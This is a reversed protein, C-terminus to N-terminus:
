RPKGLEVTFKQRKKERMAEIVVKDGAKYKRLASDIDELGGIKSDGFKVIVDGSKLGGKAAPGGPSVGMLAYGEVEQSFDPISGLYPRSGSRAALVPRKVEAYTPRKEEADIAAVIDGVFKVVRTMGELNLKDFDDSPRHYDKHTGTFIHFVPIKKAYFSSQDSPGFGTPKKTIKFKHDENLDDILADFEEASGTGYAILKNDDLRGVMDMNVMAITNELAFLPERVYKASGLLGREEATFAIFVLRRRPKGEQKAFRRAVELLAAAGSANDDAGNHIAKTWPALSGQGGWGIHDYHAGIVITENALPGEGPLVGVVNKVRATKRIVETQGKSKWATLEVSAPKLDLDIQKEIDVLKKGLQEELLRNVAKRTAFVVPFTKRPASSGAETFKLLRDPDGTMQEYADALSKALKSIEEQSKSEQEATPEKVEATENLKKQLAESLNAWEKTAIEIDNKLQVRDNVLIVGAAGHEFANAVKRTFTAHQTTKTGDFLSHPNNQQPEKRLLIVLKGKVDIDAYDDYKHEKSSIGYGAFVIPADINATGGIALPTYDAGLKWVIDKSKEDGKLAIFKLQNKKAAGLVSETTIEFEQYPGGNYLDTRLGLSKFEAAIFEAAAEIGESGVGRGELEDSSLFRVADALRKDAIDEACAIRKPSTDAVFAVVTLAVLFFHRLM